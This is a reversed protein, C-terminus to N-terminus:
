ESAEEGGDSLRGLIKDRSEGTIAEYKHLMAESSKELGERGSM